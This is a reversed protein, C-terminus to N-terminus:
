FNSLFGFFKQKQLNYRNVHFILISFHQYYKDLFANLLLLLFFYQM